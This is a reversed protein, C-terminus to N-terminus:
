QLDALEHSPKDFIKTQNIQERTLNHEGTLEAVKINYSALRRTFNGVMETALSRMPAIYIIKFNEVAISGDNPDIHRGIERM